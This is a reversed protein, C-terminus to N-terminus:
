CYGDCKSHRISERKTRVLRTKTEFISILVVEQGGLFKNIYPINYTNTEPDLLHTGAVHAEGKKIAMFGAMSGVHSSIIKSQNNVKKLHSSLLDITLDHSGNFVIAQKIEEVPKLLEITLLKVKSM